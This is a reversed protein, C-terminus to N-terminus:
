GSSGTIAPDTDDIAADLAARLYRLEAHNNHQVGVLRETLDALLSGGARDALALLETIIAAAGDTDICVGVQTYRQTKNIRGSFQLFLRTDTYAGDKVSDILQVEFSESLLMNTADIITSNFARSPGDGVSTTAATAPDALRNPVAAAALAEAISLASAIPAAPAPAPAPAAPKRRQTKGVLRRKRSM